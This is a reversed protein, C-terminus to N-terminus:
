DYNLIRKQIGLLNGLTKLREDNKRKFTIFPKNFIISFVTGHFSDTVVAKCNKIGYLFTEIYEGDNRDANYLAYGFKKQAKSILSNMANKLITHNIRYTFLYNNNLNVGNKYKEIIKLYYKKEILLTPDLVYVAKFGLHKKIFEILSKERVSIGTFNKLLIKALNEDTKNFSWKNFGISTAYIFKPVNWDKAFRLFAIDYFDTNWKRWTQDSNVILINYDKEKIESFNPIPGM